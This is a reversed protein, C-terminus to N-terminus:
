RGLRAAGALLTRTQEWGELGSDLRSLDDTSQLRYWGPALVWRNPGARESPLQALPSRDLDLMDETLWAAPPLAVGVAVCGPGNRQPAVALDVRHLVRFIKALALAPLDPVDATLVVLEDVRGTVRRALELVSLGDPLHWAGPWLLDAVEPPGAIGSGVGVLDAVVEYCDALCAWAFADKDVGVPAAGAAGHGAHVLALRRRPEETPMLVGYRRAPIVRSRQLSRARETRWSNETSWRQFLNGCPSRGSLPHSWALEVVRVLRTCMSDVHNDVNPPCHPRSRRNVPPRAVALTGWM